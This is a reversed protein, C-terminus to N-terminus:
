VVSKRDKADDHVLEAAHAIWELNLIDRLVEGRVGVRDQLSHVAGEKSIVLRLLFRPPVPRARPPVPVRHPQAHRGHRLPMGPLRHRGPAVRLLQPPLMLAGRRRRISPM